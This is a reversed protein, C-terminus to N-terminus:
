LALKMGHHSHVYGLRQYFGLAADRARDTTLQVLGCGEAAAIAHIEAMLRKGIGQGRAAAAVRVGEVLARKMGTRSLGPIIVLQACGLINGDGDSDVAVLYQNGGQAQMDGFAKLYANEDPSERETGLVDDALLAAIAPVDDRRAQRFRIATGSKSGKTM